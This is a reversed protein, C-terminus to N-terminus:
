AFAVVRYQDLLDQVAFPPDLPTVRADTGVVASRSEYWYSVLLRVAHVIGQPVQSPADGFGCTFTITVSKQVPLTAPFAQNYYRTVFVPRSALNYDYLVPNLTQTNNNMDIYQISDISKVPWMPIVMGTDFYLRDYTVSWQQTLLPVGIGNPGEVFAQAAGVLSTVYDDDDSTWIRCHTKADDTSLIPTTNTTLQTLNNFAM